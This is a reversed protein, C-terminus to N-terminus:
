PRDDLSTVATYRTFPHTVTLHCSLFKGNHFKHESPPLVWKRHRTSRSLYLHLTSTSPSLYLSASRYKNEYKITQATSTSFYQCGTSVRVRSLIYLLDGFKYPGREHVQHLSPLSYSGRIQTWGASGRQPSPWGEEQWFWSLTEEQIEESVTDIFTNFFKM